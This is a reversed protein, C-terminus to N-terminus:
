RLVPRRKQQIHASCFFCVPNLEAGSFVASLLVTVIVLSVSGYGALLLPLMVIPNLVTRIMSIMRQFFFRERATIFSSFVSCPFSVAINVVLIAMLTQAGRKESETLRSKKKKQKESAKGSQKAPAKKVARDGQRAQKPPAEEAKPRMSANTKTEEM